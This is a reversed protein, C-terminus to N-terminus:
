AQLVNYRKNHHRGACDLVQQLWTRDEQSLENRKLLPLIERKVFAETALSGLLPELTSLFDGRRRELLLDVAPKSLDDTTVHPFAALCPALIDFTSPDAKNIESLVARRCAQDSGQVIFRKLLFGLFAERSSQPARDRAGIWDIWWSLPREALLPLGYEHGQTASLVGAVLDSKRTIAVRCIVNDYDLRSSANSAAFAIM